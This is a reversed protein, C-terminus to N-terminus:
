HFHHAKGLLLAKILRGNECHINPTIVNARVLGNTVQLTSGELSVGLVQFSSGQKVYTQSKFFSPVFKTANFANSPHIGAVLHYTLINTTNQTMTFNLTGDLIAQQVAAESPLFLTVQSTSFLQQLAIYKPLLL